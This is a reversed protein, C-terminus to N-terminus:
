VECEVVGDLDYPFHLLIETDPHKLGRVKPILNTRWKQLIAGSDWGRRHSITRPWVELRDLRDHISCM